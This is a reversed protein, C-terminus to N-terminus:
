LYKLKFWIYDEFPLQSLLEDIRARLRAIVEDIESELRASLSSVFADRCALGTSPIPSLRSRETKFYRMSAALYAIEKEVSDAVTKPITPETM